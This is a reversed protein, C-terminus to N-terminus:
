TSSSVFCPAALLFLHKIKFGGKGGRPLLGAEGERCLANTKTWGDSLCNCDSLFVVSKIERAILVVATATGCWDDINFAPKQNLCYYM